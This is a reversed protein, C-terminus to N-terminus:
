EGARRTRLGVYYRDSGSKRQGFGRDGLQATFSRKSPCRFGNSACWMGFHIYLVQQAVEFGAGQDTHEDLFSGLIDSDARYQAVEAKMAQSLKVGDKLYQTAGQVMWALIGAREAMLKSELQPDQEEPLFTRRFPLIIIRRWIGNDTGKIIPKHNTRVWVSFMPQFTFLGQYLFRASIPERGALQKVVTEDLTMGGPLENISVLRNGALMALDPRPGHDDSRRAALLSPPATVAYPELIYHVVNSMLSKGNAGTGVSFIMKEETAGGVITMGLLQQVAAITSPDNCFVESLFASWRPAKATDDFDVGIHKTIYLDPRNPILAGTSLEVLGNGVGILKPHADLADAKISMGTMSQMLNRVAHIKHTTQLQAVEGILRKGADPDIEQAATCALQYMQILAETIMRVEEGLECWLWRETASCWQLWRGIGRVYVLRGHYLDRVYQAARVDGKLKWEPIVTQGSHTAPMPTPMLGMCAKGVTRQRYDHRDQWKDRQALGSHEFVAETYAELEEDRFGIAAGYRAIESALYMDAESQSPFRLAGTLADWAAQWEGGWLHPEAAQFHGVAATVETADFLPSFRQSVAPMNHDAKPQLSGGLATRLDVASYYPGKSVLRVQPNSGQKQEDLM